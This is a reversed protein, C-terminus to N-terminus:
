AAEKAKKHEVFAQGTEIALDEDTKGRLTEQRHVWGCSCRAYALAVSVIEHEQKGM